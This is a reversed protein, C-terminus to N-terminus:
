VDIIAPSDGFFTFELLTVLHPGFFITIHVNSERWSHRNTIDVNYGGCYVMHSTM